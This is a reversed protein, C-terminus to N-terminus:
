ICSAALLALADSAFIASQIKYSNVWSDEDEVVPRLDEDLASGLRLVVLAMSWATVGDFAPAM